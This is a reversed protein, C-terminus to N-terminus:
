GRHRTAAHRRAHGDILHILEAGNMKGFRPHATGISYLLDGREQVVQVSRDRVAQFGALAAALTEFRGQPHVVEPAEIKSFRNRIMTFLRIENEDNRQPTVSTGNSIWSFFRDEVVVVHEICELVSWSKPTPKGSAQEPSIGRTAELLDRRGAELISILGM